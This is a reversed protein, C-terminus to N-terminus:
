NPVIPVKREVPTVCVIRIKGGDYETYYSQCPKKKTAVIVCGAGTFLLVALVGALILFVRETM